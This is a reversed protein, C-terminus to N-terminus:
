LWNINKRLELGSIKPKSNEQRGNLEGSLHFEALHQGWYVLEHPIKKLSFCIKKMVSLHNM